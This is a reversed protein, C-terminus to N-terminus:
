LMSGQRGLVETDLLLQDLDGFCQVSISFGPSLHKTKITADSIFFPKIAAVVVTLALVSKNHKM